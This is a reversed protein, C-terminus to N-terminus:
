DASIEATKYIYKTTCKIGDPCGSFSESEEAYDRVAKLRNLFSTLNDNVLEAIKQIGDSDLQAMGDKLEVAASYLQSIADGATSIGSALQNSGSSLQNSGSSLQSVANVLTDSSNCMTELGSILAGINESNTMTDISSMIQTAAANLTNAGTQIAEAAEYIGYKDESSTDGSKLGTSIASATSSITGAGSMIKDLAATADSIDISTNKLADNVGDTYQKAGGVAAAAQGLATKQEDTLNTGSSIISNIANVATEDYTSATQLNKSAETLSGSLTEIKSTLGSKVAYAAEYIGYNETTQDDGSVAGAAIAKAADAATSAGNMIKQAGSSISSAGQAIANVAEYVGYKSIDSGTYGSKLATKLANAGALLKATGDPLAQVSEQLTSLGSSLTGMNSSISNAGDKLQGTSDNLQGMYDSFENTGDVLKSSGDTLEDIKDQLEQTDDIDSLGLQDLADDTAITLTTLLSFDTVDAEITVDEPIDIDASDSISDLLDQIGLSESLGPMAMGVVISKDGDNVVQGNTVEINSANDNELMLGSLVIYPKYITVKEGNVTEQKGTNNKYSFTIKLHGDAGALSSADVAKGDLEYKISVSIPTDKTSNGRYYIDNGDANWTISDGSGTTYDEDGKTNEIDTLNSKDALKDSGDSNKLWASVITQEPNGDADSIIYVTEEKGAEDSHGKSDILSLATDAIKSENESITSESSETTVSGSASVCASLSLAMSLSLIIALAKKQKM